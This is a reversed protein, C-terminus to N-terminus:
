ARDALAGAYWLLDDVFKGARREIAADTPEGAEGVAQEIFPVTLATPIPLAGLNMMVIRLQQLVVIGGFAGVSHTAIGIPKRRWGAGLADIANKLAAPYGKNYEPTAIVVADADEVQRSLRLLAEPPQELFRLREPLLPLDYDALDLVPAEVGEHRQLTNAILRALRPTNRGHRISGVLIPVTM